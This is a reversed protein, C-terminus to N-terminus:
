RSISRRDVLRILKGTRENRELGGAPLVEVTLAGLSGDALSAALAGLHSLIAQRAQEQLSVL